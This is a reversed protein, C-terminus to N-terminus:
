LKTKEIGDSYSGIDHIKSFLVSLAQPKIRGQKDYSKQEKMRYETNKM